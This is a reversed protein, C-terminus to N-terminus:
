PNRNWPLSRGLLDELETIGPRYYERMWSLDDEPIEIRFRDWSQGLSPLYKQLFRALPPIKHNMHLLFHSNGRNRRLNLGEPVFGSEVGLFAYCSQIADLPSELIAEEYLMIHFQERPFVNWWAKLIRAYDGMSLIGFQHAVERITQDPRVRRARIHHYYASKARAVPDRLILIFRAKPYMTYIREPISRAQGSEYVEQATSPIWFYNPTFEGSVGEGFQQEYWERGRSFNEEKDFFHLEKHSPAGIQPHQCLNKELWTTGAKQAGIVLYDPGSM